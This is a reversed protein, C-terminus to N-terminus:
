RSDILAYFLPRLFNACCYSSLFYFQRTQNIKKLLVSIHTQWKLKSDLMVGLYKFNAEKGIVECNCNLVDNCYLVHFRFDSHFRFDMLSFNVYKTKTVNM